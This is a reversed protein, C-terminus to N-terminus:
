RADILQLLPEVCILEDETNRGTVHFVIWDIRFPRPMEWGRWVGADGKIWIEQITLCPGSRAHKACREVYDRVRKLTSVFSLSLYNRSTRM